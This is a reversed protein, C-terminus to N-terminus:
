EREEFIDRGRKDEVKIKRRGLSVKKDVGDGGDLTL